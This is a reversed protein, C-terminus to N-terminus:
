KRLSYELVAEYLRKEANELEGEGNKIVVDAEKQFELDESITKKRQEIETDPLARKGSSLRLLLEERSRPVLCVTLAKAGYEQKANRAGSPDLVAFVLDHRLLLQDIVLRSSGYYGTIRKSWELFDKQAIRVQFEPETLFEYDIGSVEWVGDEKQRKPRTTTTVLRASDPFRELMRKCLTTKGVNTPGVLIVLTPM